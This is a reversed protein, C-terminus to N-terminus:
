SIADKRCVQACIGCGACLLQDIVAKGDKDPTIAPCGVKFCLGCAICRNEDVKLPTKVADRYRVVCPARFILVSPGKFALEEELAKRTAEMDNPDVVRVHEVGISRCLGELDVQTSPERRLNRGTAPHEQHGTMATTENDLICINVDADRYVADILSTIGSHLFTSDGLVGVAPQKANSGEQVVSFGINQGVSAGMCMCTDMKNLPPYGGLAYCGIDGLPVVDKMKSLVTFFGRHSCGPCLVPPRAPIKWDTKAPEGGSISRKVIEVSLEGIRPVVGKGIVEVGLLKAQEEIYPEVEEVVYIKEVTRAFELIKKDPVPYSMSIKLTSADPFAERAYQYAVSSAIIGMKDSRKDIRNYEFDNSFDRLRALRKELDVRRLRSSSPVMNYKLFNGNYPKLPVEKREGLTVPSKSHCVRTTLRIIVPIDYNESMDLAIGVFDRAEQSDSPELCPCKGFHAFLRTDQENQSSHQGPDDAVVVVLGGNVGTYVSTMFPDAAVNLGVHKMSVMTRGGGLSAGFAVEYAVKENPSWEAKIEPYNGVNELIETAPTGPYSAALHVGYEYAGRAIAENGSLAVKKEQGTKVTSM